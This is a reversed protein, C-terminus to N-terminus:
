SHDLFSVGKDEMHRVKKDEYRFVVSINKM